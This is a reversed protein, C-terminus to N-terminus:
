PRKRLRNLVAEIEQWREHGRTPLALLDEVTRAPEGQLWELWSASEGTNVFSPPRQLEVSLARALARSHTVVALGCVLEPLDAFGKALYRGMAKAYGESLGMEPEDVVMLTATGQQAWQHATAFASQVVRVSVAGTSQDTEDGFMAGRRLNVMDDSGSGTRERISVCLRSIRHKERALSSLGRAVLSKGTGNEGGMVLVKPHGAELSVTLPLEKLRSQELLEKVLAYVHM